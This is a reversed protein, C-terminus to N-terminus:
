VNHEDHCSFERNKGYRFDCIYVQNGRVARCRDFAAVLKAFTLDHIVNCTGDITM